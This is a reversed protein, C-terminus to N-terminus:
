NHLFNQKKSKLIGKVMATNANELEKAYIACKSRDAKLDEKLVGEASIVRVMVYKANELEEVSKV